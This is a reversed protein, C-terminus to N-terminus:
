EFEPRVKFRWTDVIRGDVRWRARWRGPGGRDNVFRAVFVRSVGNANTRRDWCRQTGSRRHRLCVRYRVRGDVNERFVARWGAGQSGQHAPIGDFRDVFGRYSSQGAAAPVWGVLVGLVVTVVTWAHKSM